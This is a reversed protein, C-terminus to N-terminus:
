RLGKISKKKAITRKPGKRTRANTRTRQGRLPLGRIHRLGRYCKIKKLRDIDAAVQRTLQGEIRHDKDIKAAIRALEDDTLDKAMKVPDIGIAVLLKKSTTRGIGRIYTLSIWSHKRDPIEVGLIRPM